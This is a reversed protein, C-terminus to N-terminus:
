DAPPQPPQRVRARVSRSPKHTRQFRIWAVLAARIGLQFSGWVSPLTHFGSVYVPLTFTEVCMFVACVLSLGPAIGAFIYFMVMHENAWRVYQAHLSEDVKAENVLGAPGGSPLGQPAIPAKEDASSGEGISATDADSSPPTSKRSHKAM